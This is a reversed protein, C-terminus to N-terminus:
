LGLKRRCFAIASDAKPSGLRKAQMFCDLAEHHKGLDGLIAGKNIWSLAYKPYFQLSQDLLDLAEQTRGRDLEQVARLNLEEPGDGGLMQRCFAIGRATDPM